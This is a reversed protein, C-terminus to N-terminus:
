LILLMWFHSYKVTKKWFAFSRSMWGPSLNIVNTNGPNNVARCDFVYGGGNGTPDDPIGKKYAFSMVKVTLQRKKLDDKFQKLETLERLVSCLYPYEPYENHLLQRLNEIAYPVSQIFHPKKEFYGRFGYAGLVQM